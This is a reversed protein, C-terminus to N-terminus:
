GELAAKAFEHARGYLEPTLDRMNKCGCRSFVEAVAPDGKAERLAILAARVDTLEVKNESKAEAKEEVAEQPAAEPEPQEVKEDKKGKRAKKEAPKKEPEPAKEEAAPADVPAKSHEVPTSPTYNKLAETGVIRVEVGNTALLKIAEALKDITGIMDVM